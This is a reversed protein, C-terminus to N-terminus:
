RQIYLCVTRDTKNCTVCCIRLHKSRVLCVTYGTGLPSTSRSSLEVPQSVAPAAPPASLPHLLSQHCSSCLHWVHMSAWSYLCKPGTQKEITQTKKKGELNQSTITNCITGCINSFFIAKGSLNVTNPSEIM